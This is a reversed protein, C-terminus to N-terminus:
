IYKPGMLTSSVIGGTKVPKTYGNELEELMYKNKADIICSNRDGADRNGPGNLVKERHIVLGKGSCGFEQTTYKSGHEVPFMPTSMLPEPDIKIMPNPSFHNSATVGNFVPANIQPMPTSLPKTPIYGNKGEEVLKPGVFLKPMKIDAIVDCKYSHSSKEIKSVPYSLATPEGPVDLKPVAEAFGNERKAPYVPGNNEEVKIYKSTAGWLPIPYKPMTANPPDWRKVEKGMKPNTFFTKILQVIFSTRPLRLICNCSGM